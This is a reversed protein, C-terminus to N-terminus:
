GGDDFDAGPGVIALRAAALERGLYQRFPNDTGITALVSEYAATHAQLETALNEAVAADVLLSMKAAQAELELECGRLEAESYDADSPDFEELDSPLSVWAFKPDQCSWSFTPELTARMSGLAPVVLQRISFVRPGESDASGVCGGQAFDDRGPIGGHNARAVAIDAATEDYLAAYYKDLESQTMREIRASNVDDGSEAVVGANATAEVSLSAAVAVIAEAPYDAVPDYEFGAAIMCREVSQERNFHEWLAITDDRLLGAADRGLGPVDSLASESQREGGAGSSSGFSGGIIFAALPAGILVLLKTKSVRRRGLDTTEADTSRM